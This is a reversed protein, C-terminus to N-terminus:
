ESSASGFEHQDDAGSGLLRQLENAEACGGPYTALVRPPIEAAIQRRKEPWKAALFVVRNVSSVGTTGQKFPVLEECTKRILEAQKEDPLRDFFKTLFEKENPRFHPESKFFDYVFEFAWDAGDTLAICYFKFVEDRAAVDRAMAYKFFTKHIQTLTESNKTGTIVLQQAVILLGCGLGAYRM